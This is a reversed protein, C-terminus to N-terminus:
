ENKGVKRKEEILEHRLSRFSDLQTEICIVAIIVALDAAYEFGANFQLLSPLELTGNIIMLSLYLIIKFIISIRNFILNAYNGWHSYDILFHNLIIIVTMMFSTTQAALYLSGQVGMILYYDFDSTEGWLGGLVLIAEQYLLSFLLGGLMGKMADWRLSLFTWLTLLTMTIKVTKEFVAMLQLEHCLWLVALSLLNFVVSLVSVTVMVKEDLLADKINIKKM